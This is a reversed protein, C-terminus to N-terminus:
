LLHELFLSTLHRCDPLFTDITYGVQLSCQTCRINKKKEGERVPGHVFGLHVAFWLWWGWLPCEPHLHGPDLTEEMHGRALCEHSDGVWRDLQWVQASFELLCIRMKEEESRGRHGGTLDQEFIKFVYTTFITHKELHTNSFLKHGFGNQSLIPLNTNM